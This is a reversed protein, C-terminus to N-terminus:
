QYSCSQKDKNELTKKKVFFLSFWKIRMWSEIRKSQVWQNTISFLLFSVISVTFPLGFSLVFPRFFWVLRSLFPDYLIAFNRQITSSGREMYLDWIICDFQWTPHSLVRSKGGMLKSRINPLSSKRKLPVLKRTIEM